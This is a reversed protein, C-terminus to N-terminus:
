SYLIAFDAKHAHIQHNMHKCLREIDNIGKMIIIDNYNPSILFCPPTKLKIDKLKLPENINKLQSARPKQLMIITKHQLGHPKKM